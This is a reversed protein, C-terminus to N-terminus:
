EDYERLKYLSYCAQIINIVVWLATVSNLNGRNIVITTIVNTIAFLALNELVFKRDM